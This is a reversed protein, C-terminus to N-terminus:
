NRTNAGLLLHTSFPAAQEELFSPYFYFQCQMMWVAHNQVVVELFFFFGFFVFLAKLVM